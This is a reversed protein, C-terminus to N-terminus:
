NSGRFRKFNPDSDPHIVRGLEALEARDLGEGKAAKVASEYQKIREARRAAFAAVSEPPDFSHNLKLTPAPPRLAKSEYESLDHSLPRSGARMEQLAALRSRCAELESQYAPLVGLFLPISQQYDRFTLLYPSRASEKAVFISGKITQYIKREREETQAPNLGDADGFVWGIKDRLTACVEELCAARAASIAGLLDFSAREFDKDHLALQSAVEARIKELSDKAATLAALQQPLSKTGEVSDSLLEVGEATKEAIQKDLEALRAQYAARRTFFDAARDAASSKSATSQVRSKLLAPM